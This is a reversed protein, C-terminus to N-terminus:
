AHKAGAAVDRLAMRMDFSTLSALVFRGTVAVLSLGSERVVFIEASETALHASDVPRERVSDVAELLENAATPWSPASGTSAVTEGDPGLIAASKLEPELEALNELVREAVKAQSVTGPGPTQDTNDAM